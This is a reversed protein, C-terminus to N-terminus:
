GVKAILKTVGTRTFGGELSGVLVDAETGTLDEQGSGEGLDGWQVVGDEDEFRIM